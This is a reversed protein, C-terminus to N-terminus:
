DKITAVIRRSKEFHSFLICTIFKGKVNLRSYFYRLSKYTLVGFYVVVVVVAIALM